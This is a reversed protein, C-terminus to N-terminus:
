GSFKSEWDPRVALLNVDIPGDMYALGNRGQGEEAIVQVAARGTEDVLPPVEFVQRADLLQSPCFRVDRLRLDHYLEDLSGIVQETLAAVVSDGVARRLQEWSAYVARPVFDAIVTGPAIKVGPTAFPRLVAIAPLEDAM